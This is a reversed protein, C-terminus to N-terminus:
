PQKEKLLEDSDSLSKQAVAITMASESVPGDLAAPVESSQNQDAASLDPQPLQRIQRALALAAQKLLTDDQPLRASDLDELQAVGQDYNSALISAASDYLQARCAEVSDAKALHEARDAAFRTVDIRGKIISSQAILLYFRLQENASLGSLLDDLQALQEPSGDIHLRAIAESFHQRFNDAYASNRFRRIYQGSMAVFKDFDGTEDLLFIERRLAAEEVLTGPALIRAVDLLQIAKGSDDKAALAAQVLAIHGGLISELSRPDVDSLLTEARAEHGEIYALAGELLKKEQSPCNGSELVKKAVRPSGGSLVYTVAARANRPERWVTPDVALLKEALQASFAPMAARAATNGLVMQDQLAHLSRIIEYPPKSQAGCTGAALATFFLALIRVWSRM